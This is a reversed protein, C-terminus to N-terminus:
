VSVTANRNSKVADHPSREGAPRAHNDVVAQHRRHIGLFLCAAAAIDFVHAIEKPVGVGFGREELGRADVQGLGLPFAVPLVAVAERKGSRASELSPAALRELDLLAVGSLPGLALLLLPADNAFPLM